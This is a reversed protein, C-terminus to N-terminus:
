ESKAALELEYIKGTAAEMKLMASEVAEKPTIFVLYLKKLLEREEESCDDSRYYKLIEDFNMYTCQALRMKCLDAIEPKIKREKIGKALKDELEPNGKRRYLNKLDYNTDDWYDIITGESASKILGELEEPTVESRGEQPEEDGVGGSVEEWEPIGWDALPCDAWGGQLLTMDWHGFSGNDKIVIEKLKSAPTTAPIVVCPVDKDKNFKSGAFRLNGGLIVYKKGQPYVIIPRAEFLEPTERLSAAISEVEKDSWQRPNSPLGAIQGNNPELDKVKLRVIEM